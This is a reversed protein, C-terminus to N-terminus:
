RPTLDAPPRTAGALEYTTDYTLAIRRTVYVRVRIRGTWPGTPVASGDVKREEGSDSIARGKFDVPQGSSVRRLDDDTVVIWIRGRENYFFYPFVRAYYTSSYVVGKRVFPPYSMSVTGIYISASAPKIAVVGFRALPNDAGLLPPLPAVALVASALFSRV